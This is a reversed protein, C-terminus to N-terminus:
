ETLFRYEYIIYLIEKPMKKLANTLWAIRIKECTSVLLSKGCTIDCVDYRQLLQLCQRAKISRHTISLSDLEQFTLTAMMKKPLDINVLHINTLRWTKNFFLLNTGNRGGNTMWKKLEPDLQQELLSPAAFIIFLIFAFFILGYYLLM